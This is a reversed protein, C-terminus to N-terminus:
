INFFDLSSHASFYGKKNLVFVSLVFLFINNCLTCFWQVYQCDDRVQQWSLFHMFINLQSGPFAKPLTTCKLVDESVVEPQEKRHNQQMSFAWRLQLVALRWVELPIPLWWFTSLPQPSPTPPPPSSGPPEGKCRRRQPLVSPPCGNSRRWPCRWCWRGSSLFMTWLRWFLSHSPRWPEGFRM